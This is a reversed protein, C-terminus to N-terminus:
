DDSASFRTTKGRYFGVAPAQDERWGDFCLVM